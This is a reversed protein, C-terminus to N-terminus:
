CFEQPAMAQCHEKVGKNMKIVTYILWYLLSGDSFLFCCTEQTIYNKIYIRMIRLFQYYIMDNANPVSNWCLM